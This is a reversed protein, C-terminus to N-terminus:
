NLKESILDKKTTDLCELCYYNGEDFIICEQCIFSKCKICEAVEELNYKIKCIDCVVRM